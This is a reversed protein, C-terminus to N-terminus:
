FYIGLLKGGMLDCWINIGGITQNNLKMLGYYSNFIMPNEESKTVLWANYTIKRETEWQYLHQVLIPRHPYM